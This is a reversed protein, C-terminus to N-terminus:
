IDIGHELNFYGSIEKYDKRTLGSEKLFEDYTKDELAKEMLFNMLVYLKDPTDIPPSKYLYDPEFSM